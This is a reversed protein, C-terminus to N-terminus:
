SKSWLAEAKTYKKAKINLRNARKLLELNKRSPPSTLARNLASTIGIKIRSKAFLSLKERVGITIKTLPRIKFM